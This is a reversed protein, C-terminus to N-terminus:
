DLTYFEEKTIRVWGFQTLNSIGSAELFDGVTMKSSELAIIADRDLAIAIPQIDKTELNYASLIDIGYESQTKVWPVFLAFESLLAVNASVDWYEMASEGGSEGGSPADGGGASIGKIETAFDVPKILETTGKKERIADAIDKLFKRLNQIM